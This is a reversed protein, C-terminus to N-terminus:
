RRSRHARAESVDGAAPQRGIESPHQGGTRADGDITGAPRNGRHERRNRLATVDGRVLHLAGEVEADAHDGEDGGVIGVTGEGGQQGAVHRRPDRAGHFRAVRIGRAADLEDALVRCSCTM